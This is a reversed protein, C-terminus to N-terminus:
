YHHYESDAHHMRDDIPPIGNCDGHVTWYATLLEDRVVRIAAVKKRTTAATDRLHVMRAEAEEDEEEVNFAPCHPVDDRIPDFCTLDALEWIAGYFYGSPAITANLRNTLLVELVDPEGKLKADEEEKLASIADLMAGVLVNMMILSVIVFFVVFYWRMDGNTYTSVAGDAAQSWNNGIM